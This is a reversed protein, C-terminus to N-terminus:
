RLVRRVEWVKVETGETEKIAWCVSKASDVFAGNEQMKLIALAVNRRKAKKVVDADHLERLFEPKQRAKSM